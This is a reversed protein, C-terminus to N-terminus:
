TRRCTRCTRPCSSSSAFDHAVNTWYFGSVQALEFESGSGFHVNVDVNATGTGAGTLVPGAANSIVSNPGSLASSITANGGGTTYSYLGNAGSIATLADTSRAVQASSLGRNSTVSTTALPSGNWVTGTVTGHHTHYVESEAKLVRPSGTAAIWYRMALPKVLSTSAVRVNWALHGQAADDVWIELKPTEARLAVNGGRTRAAAVAAASASTASVTASTADVNVPLNRQRTLFVRGDDTAISLFDSGKALPVGQYELRALTVVKGPGADPDALARKNAAVQPAGGMVRVSEAPLLRFGTPLRSELLRTAAAGVEAPPAGKAVGSMVPADANQQYLYQLRSGDPYDAAPASNMPTRPPSQAQTATTSWALAITLTTLAALRGRTKTGIDM